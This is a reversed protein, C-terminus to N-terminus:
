RRVREWLAHAIVTRGEFSMPEGSLLLTNGSFTARRVQDTGSWNPFSSLLAHHVVNAGDFEYTGVYSIHTTMAATNEAATGSVMDARAFPPRDRRALHASVHGDSSYVLFGVADEGMPHTVTGDSAENRWSRLTWTGVLPDDAM